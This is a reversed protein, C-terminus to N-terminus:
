YHVYEVTELIRARPSSMVKGEAGRWISQLVQLFAKAQSVEGFDLEVIAYDRDDIPRLIRYSRVGGAQRRAPDSDFALKWVDFSPVPHEIRLITM